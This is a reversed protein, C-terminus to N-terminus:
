DMMISDLAEPASILASTDIHCRITKDAFFWCTPQRVYDTTDGSPQGPGYEVGHEACVQALAIAFANGTNYRSGAFRAISTGRMAPAAIGWAMTKAQKYNM